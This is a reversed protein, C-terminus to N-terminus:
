QKHTQGHGGGGESAATWGIMLTMMTVVAVRVGVTQVRTGGRQTLRATMHESEGGAGEWRRRKKGRRGRRVESQRGGAVYVGMGGRRKKNKEKPTPSKPLLEGVPAKRQGQVWGGWGHEAGDGIDDDMDRVDTEYTTVANCGECEWPAEWVRASKEGRGEKRGTGLDRRRGGRGGSEQVATMGDGQSTAEEAHRTDRM